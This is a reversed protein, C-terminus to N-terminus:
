QRQVFKRGKTLSIIQLSGNPRLNKLYAIDKSITSNVFVFEPRHYYESIALITYHQFLQYYFLICILFVQPSIFIFDLEARTPSFIVQFEYYMM